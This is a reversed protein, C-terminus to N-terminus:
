ARFFGFGRPTEEPTDPTNSCGLMTLFLLSLALLLCLIKTTKM